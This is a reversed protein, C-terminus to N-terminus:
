QQQKLRGNDERRQLRGNNCQKLLSSCQVGAMPHPKQWSAAVAQVYVQPTLILYWVPTQTPYTHKTLIYLEKSRSLMNNPPVKMMETRGSSLAQALEMSPDKCYTMLKRKPSAFMRHPPLLLLMLTLVMWLLIAIRVMIMLKGCRPSVRSLTRLLSPQTPGMM